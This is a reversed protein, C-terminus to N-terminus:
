GGIQLKEPLSKLLKISNRVDTEGRPPKDHSGAASMVLIDKLKGGIDPIKEDFIKGVGSDWMYEATQDKWSDPKFGAPGYKIYTVTYLREIAERVLEWARKLEGDDIKKEALNLRESFRRNGEEVICGSRRSLRVSM